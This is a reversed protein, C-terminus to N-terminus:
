RRGWPWHTSRHGTVTHMVPELPVAVAGTFVTIWLASEDRPM